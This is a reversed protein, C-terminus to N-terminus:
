PLLQLPLLQKSLNPSMELSDEPDKIPITLHDLKLLVLLKILLQSKKTFKDLLYILVKKKKPREKLKTSRRNKM